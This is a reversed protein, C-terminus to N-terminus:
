RSRNNRHFATLAVPFIVLAVITVAVIGISSMMAISRVGAHKATINSLFGTLTTLSSFLVAGGTMELVTPLKEPGDTKYRHYIHISADVGIGVVTPIVILNYLNFKIGGLYSCGIMLIIGSVLSLLIAFSSIFSRFMILLTIFVAIMSFLIAAPVEKEIVRKIDALLFYTSRNKYDKLKGKITGFDEKLGLVANIDKKNGSFTMKVIKGFSGDKERTKDKIWEPLKDIEIENEVSLVPFIEKEIRQKLPPSFLNMKREIMRRTNRIIRLKEDQDDPVFSFVSLVMKPHERKHKQLMLSEVARHADKAEELSDTLIYNPITRDMEGRKEKKMEDRYNAYLTSNREKISYSLNGMDYEFKILFISVASLAIVAASLALATKPHRILKRYIDSLLSLRRPAKAVPYIKEVVVVFVPFFLVIAVLSTIIGIGSVIGFDSFGRFEVFYLSLFAVATTLAGSIISGLVRDYSIKLADAMSVGKSREESYRSLLHIAFDIGLGYLMAFSFASILSFEKVILISTFLASVIGFSLPILVIFLSSLTRFYFIITLSLLVICIAVTSLIDNQLVNKQKLKSKYDGGTEVTVGFKAPDIRKVTNEVIGVIKGAEKMDLSSAVEPHIKIEMMTGDATAFYKQIRYRQREKKIRESLRNLETELTDSQDSKDSKDSQDSLDSLSLSKKVEDAILGTVKSQMKQLDELPLFLLARDELYTIDQEFEVSRIIDKQKVLEPVLAKFFATNKEISDAKSIVSLTDISGVRASLEQLDIVSQNEGDFLAELDSNVSFHNKLYFAEACLVLIFFLIITLSHRISIDIYREFIKKM